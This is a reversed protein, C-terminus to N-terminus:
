PACACVGFKPWGPSGAAHRTWTTRPSLRWIPPPPSRGAPTTVASAHWRDPLPAQRALRAELEALHDVLHDALRRIAKHPTYIRDEVALPHGDWTSWTSALRLAHAVAEDIVQAPARDDTVPGQDAM